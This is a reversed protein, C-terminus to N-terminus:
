RSTTSLVAALAETFDLLEADAGRRGIVQLGVPLGDPSLGIPVSVAPHGTFNVPFTLTWGIMPEVSEEGIRQPGVTRGWPGNPVGAVGTTPTILVDSEELADEIVDFVETRRASDRSHELASLRAGTEILDALEDPIDERHRGLLDVGLDRKIREAGFATQVSILRRWLHALEEHPPLPLSTQDVEGLQRAAHAASEVAAAVRAEVPASGLRPDYAVRWPGRRRQTPAPPRPTFLPDRPDRASLAQDALRADAVSRTLAGIHQFPTAAQFADPRRAEPVSFASGKFGVVGCLAAPIRISGGGDSGQALVALGAAVAAAAGGSSGGSNHDLRYPNRTPGFLFNDTTGKHGMEPTNTKGLIVAGARRLNRVHSPDEHSVNGALPKLGMTFRVGAMPEVDKVSVPIGDLPGFASGDRRRRDSADAAALADDALVTVFANLMPNVREIRTLFVGVLERSTFRGGALGHALEGVSAFCVEEDAGAPRLAETGAGSANM